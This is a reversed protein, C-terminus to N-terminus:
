DTRWTDQFCGSLLLTTLSLSAPIASLQVRERFLFLRVVVCGPGEVNLGGLESLLALQLSSYAWGIETFPPPPLWQLRVGANGPLPSTESLM